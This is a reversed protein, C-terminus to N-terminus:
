ATEASRNSQRVVKNLVFMRLRLLLSWRLGRLESIVVIRNPIDSFMHAGVVAVVATPSVQVGRVKLTM